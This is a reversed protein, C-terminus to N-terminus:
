TQEEGIMLECYKLNTSQDDMADEEPAFVDPTCVLACSLASIIILVM